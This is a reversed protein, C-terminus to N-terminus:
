SSGRMYTPTWCDPTGSGCLPPDVDDDNSNDLPNSDGFDGAEVLSINSPQIHKRWVATIEEATLSEIRQQLDAHWMRTRGTFLDATLDWALQRDNSASLEQERLWGSKAADVEAKNFGHLLSQEIEDYFAAELRAFNRPECTATTIFTLAADLAGGYLYSEVSYSLGDRRRIRSPLRSNLFDGGVLYTGLLLAPYDPSNQGVRLLLGATFAGNQRDAENLREKVAPAKRYVRVVPYFPRANRWDGFCEEAVDTFRGPEFDGVVSLEGHSAGYFTAHFKRIDALTVRKLADLKEDATQVRRVDGPPYPHLARDITNFALSDPDSRESATSLLASRKLQEFEDEPFAPRRVVESVLRFVPVLNERTTAITVTVSQAGGSIAVDADAETFADQIQKRTHEKTGRLLMGATLYGIWRQRRLSHADGFRLNLVLNVRGGRTRKPLLAVKLGSSLAVRILHSEVNSPSPDFSEGQSVTRHRMSDHFLAATDPARPVTVRRGDPGPLFQAVTRNSTTLYRRAVQEVDAGSVSELRERHLFFLRWDGMAAWDGIELAFDETSRLVDDMENVARRREHAVDVDTFRSGHTELVKLMADLTPASPAGAPMRAGFVALGPDHMYAAYGYVSM